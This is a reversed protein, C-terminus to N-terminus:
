KESAGQASSYKGRLDNFRIKLLDIFMKVSDRVASIRTTKVFTWVVPVQKIKYGLKQAIYLVEVDWAGTYAVDLEKSNGNYLSLRSFVDKAVNGKFLKFGCQSDNIGPLAFIRVFFNFVRGMLHRIYPEGIREAGVGERSAIVIDYNQDIAWVSLKKLESIPASLDADAMYIMKGSAKMIGTYVTPGKGMHKNKILIVEPVDKAYDEVAAATNDKSGDDVLIVEFSNCFGRMFGVVQTLTSSIKDAENYAPIVVSYEVM